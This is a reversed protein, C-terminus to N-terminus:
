PNIRPKQVQKQGRQREIVHVAYWTLRLDRSSIRAIECWEFDRLFTLNLKLVSLAFILIYNKNLLKQHSIWSGMYNIRNWFTPMLSILLMTSLATSTSSVLTASSTLLIFSTIIVDSHRWLIVILLKIRPPCNIEDKAGKDDQHDSWLNITVFLYNKCLPSTM